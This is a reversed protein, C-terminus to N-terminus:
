SIKLYLSEIIVIDRNLKTKIQTIIDIYEVKNIMMFIQSVDELIHVLKNVTKILDGVKLNQIPLYGNNTLIQTDSKFCTLQLTVKEIVNNYIKYNNWVKIWM